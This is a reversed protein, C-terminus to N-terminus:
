NHFSSSSSSSSSSSTSSSGGREGGNDDRIGNMPGHRTFEESTLDLGPMELLQQPSCAITLLRSGGPARRLKDLLGATLAFHGLYNVGLQMDFGDATTPRMNKESAAPISAAANNVLIHLDQYSARFLRVCERVSALSSLDLPLFACDDRGSRAQIAKVAAQGKNENRCAIVVTAGMRALEVASEMGLGRNGGTILAIRGTLDRTDNEAVSADAGLLTLVSGIALIQRRNFYNGINHSDDATASLSASRTWSSPLPPLFSYVSHTCLYVALLSARFFKANLHM